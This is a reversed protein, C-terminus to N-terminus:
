ISTQDKQGQSAAELSLHSLLKNSPISTSALHTRGNCKTSSRVEKRNQSRPSSIKQELNLM